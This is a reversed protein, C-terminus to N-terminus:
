VNECEQNELVFKQERTQIKCKAVSKKRRVLHWFFVLQHVPKEAGKGSLFPYFPLVYMPPISIIKKGTLDIMAKGRDVSYM